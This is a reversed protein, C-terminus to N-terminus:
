AKLKKRFSALGRCTAAHGIMDKMRAEDGM